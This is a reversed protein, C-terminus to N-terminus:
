RRSAHETCQGNPDCWKADQVVLPGDNVRHYTVFVTNDGTAAYSKYRWEQNGVFWREVLAGNTGFSSEVDVKTEDNVVRNFEGPTVVGNSAAYAVTPIAAMVLGTLITATKIM